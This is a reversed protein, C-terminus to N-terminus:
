PSAAKRVYRFGVEMDLDVSMGAIAANALNTRDMLSICYMVGLTIVLRRDIRHIIKRQDNRSFASLIADAGMSESHELKETHQSEIEQGM